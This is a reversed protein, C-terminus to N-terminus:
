VLRFLVDWSWSRMGRWELRCGGLERSVYLRICTRLARCEMNRAIYREADRSPGDGIGEEDWGWSVGGWAEGGEPGAEGGGDEAM